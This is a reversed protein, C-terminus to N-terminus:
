FPRFLHEYLEAFQETLFNLGINAREPILLALHLFPPDAVKDKLIFYWDIHVLDVLFPSSLLKLLLLRLSVESSLFQLLEEIVLIELHVLFYVHCILLHVEFHWWM